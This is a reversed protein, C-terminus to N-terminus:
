RSTLKGTEWHDSIEAFLAASLRLLSAEHALISAVRTFRQCEQNVRELANSSRLRRQPSTKCSFVALGDPLNREMGQPLKLASTSYAADVEALRGRSWVEVGGVEKRSEAACLENPEGSRREPLSTPKRQPSGMSLFVEGRGGVLAAWYVRVVERWREAQGVWQFGMWCESFGPAERGGCFVGLSKRLGM